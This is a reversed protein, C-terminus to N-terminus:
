GYKRVDQLLKVVSEQGERTRMLTVPAKNGLGRKPGQLWTAADNGLIAQALRVVKEVGDALDPTPVAQSAQKDRRAANTDQPMSKHLVAGVNPAVPQNLLELHKELSMSGRCETRAFASCSWFEGYRSPRKTMHSGCRPCFPEQVTTKQRVPKPIFNVLEPPVEGYVFWYRRHTNFQAGHLKAYQAMGAPVDLMRTALEPPDALGEARAPLASDSEDEGGGTPLRDGDTDTPELNDGM